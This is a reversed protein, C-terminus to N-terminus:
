AAVEDGHARAISIVRDLDGDDLMSAPPQGGGAEDSLMLRHLGLKSVGPRAGGRHGDADGPTAGCRTDTM